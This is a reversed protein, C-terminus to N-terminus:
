QEDAPPHPLVGGRALPGPGSGPGQQARFWGGPRGDRLPELPTSQEQEEQERMAARWEDYGEPKVPKAGCKAIKKEESSFMLFKAGVCGDWKLRAYKYKTFRVDDVIQDVANKDSAASATVGVALMGMCLLTRTLVRVTLHNHM